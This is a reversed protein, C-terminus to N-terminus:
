DSPRSWLPMTFIRVIVFSQNQQNSVTSPEFKFQKQLLPSADPCYTAQDTSRKAKRGLARCSKRENSTDIAAARRPADTGNRSLFPLKRIPRLPRSSRASTQCQAPRDIMGGVRCAHKM